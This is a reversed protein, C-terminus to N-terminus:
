LKRKRSHPIKLKFNIQHKNKSNNEYVTIIDKMLEEDCNMIQISQDCIFHHYKTYNRRVVQVKEKYYVNLNRERLGYHDKAGVKWILVL